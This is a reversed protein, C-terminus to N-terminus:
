QQPSILVKLVGRRGAHEFATLGDDLSYWAHILPLVHVRGQNLLQLAPEFPGCRSGVVTIENVVLQSLDVPIKSNAYTSKLVLTGMPRVLRRALDFGGSSGTAEVVVDAQRATLMAEDEAGILDAGILFTQCGHWDRLLQLTEAHRGIVTLDCGTLALVQAILMGMRGNGILYVRMSPTIHVQQLIELSAALPEAFVAVEDKLSAPVEHLNAIPLTVMEAMAGNRNIIGLTERQPCHKGLGRLCVPCIGCGINIEGVVRRGVWEPADPAAIVDGVFEHGLVGHFGKKYGGILALDTACIGALRVRVLAEGVQPVPDPYSSQIQPGQETLCLAKM